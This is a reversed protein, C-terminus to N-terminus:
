PVAPSAPATKNSTYDALGTYLGVPDHKITSPLKSTVTAADLRLTVLELAGCSAGVPRTVIVQVGGGDRDVFQPNSYGDCPLVSAVITGSSNNAGRSM